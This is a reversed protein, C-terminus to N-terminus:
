VAGRSRLAALFAQSTARQGERALWSRQAEAEREAMEILAANRRVLPDDPFDGCAQCELHFLYAAWNRPSLTRPAEPTGKPCGRPRRCPPTNRPDREILKGEADRAPTGTEEDYVFKQCHDCSRAALVPQVRM